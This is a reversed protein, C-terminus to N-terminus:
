KMPQKGSVGIVVCFTVADCCATSTKVYLPWVYETGPESAPATAASLPSSVWPPVSGYVRHTSTARSYLESPSPCTVQRWHPVPSSHRTPGRGEEGGM